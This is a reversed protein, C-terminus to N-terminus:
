VRPCGWLYRRPVWAYCDWVLPGPRPPPTAFYGYYGFPYYARSAIATGVVAGTVGGAAVGGWFPGPGWGGRWANAPSLTALATAGVIAAAVLGNRIQRM